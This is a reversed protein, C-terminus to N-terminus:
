YLGDHDDCLDFDGSGWFFDALDYTGTVARPVWHMHITSVMELEEVEGGVAGPM